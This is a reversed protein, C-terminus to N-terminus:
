SAAVLSVRHIPPCQLLATACQSSMPLGRSASGGIRSGCPAKVHRARLRSPCAGITHLRQETDLASPTGIWGLTPTTTPTPDERHGAHTARTVPSAAPRHDALQPRGALPGTLLRNAPPTVMVRLPSYTIAPLGSWCVLWRLVLRVRTPLLLARPVGPGMASLSRRPPPPSPEPRFSRV